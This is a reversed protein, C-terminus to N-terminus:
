KEKYVCSFRPEESRGVYHDVHIRINIFGCKKKVPILCGDVHFWKVQENM